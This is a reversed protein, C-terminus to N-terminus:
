ASEGLTDSSMDRMKAKLSVVAPDNDIRRLRSLTKKQAAWPDLQQRVRHSSSREDAEVFPESVSADSLDDDHGGGEDGDTGGYDDDDDDVYNGEGDNDRYDNEAGDDDDDNSDENARDDDQAADLDDDDATGTGTLAHAQAHTDGEGEGEGEGEDEPELDKFFGPANNRKQLYRLKKQSTTLCSIRSTM